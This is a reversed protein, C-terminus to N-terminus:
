EYLYWPWSENDLRADLNCCDDDSQAPTQALLAEEEDCCPDGHWTEWGETVAVGANLLTTFPDAWWWGLFANASLGILLTLM